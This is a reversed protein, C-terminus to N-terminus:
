RRLDRLGRVKWRRDDDDDDDEDDDDGSNVAQEVSCGNSTMVKVNVLTGSINKIVAKWKSGKVRIGEALIQGTDANMITITTGITARGTIALKHDGQNFEMERIVLLTGDPCTLCTDDSAGNCNEDVGNGCVEAAGPNITAVFDNCDTGGCTADQYSDADADPCTPDCGEDIVGSCNNDVEDGCVETTGPNVGPDTDDCDVPGCGGGDIAYTDGDNDTCTQPCDVADPDQIDVLGNCNNDIGDTCVEVANPNVESDTDDCDGGAPTFSDGDNDLLSTDVSDVGDCNEDTGNNPIDVAGPNIAASTDDCDVPGCDGGDVAFGDADDDTCTQCGVAAPDQVDILGNCNNDINDSCNEAAAPNIAANADNCDVPGCDGGEVAYTDNDRDTCAPPPPASPCFFDTLTSGGALYAEKAPTPAGRDSLHCLACNGTYPTAPACATNVSTGLSGFSFGNTASLLLAGAVALCTLTEKKM